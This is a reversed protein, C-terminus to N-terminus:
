PTWFLIPEPIHDSRAHGRHLDRLAGIESGHALHEYAITWVLAGMMAEGGWHTPRLLDLDGDNLASV